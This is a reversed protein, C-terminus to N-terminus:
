RDFHSVRARAGTTSTYVISSIDTRESDRFLPIGPFLQFLFCRCSQSARTESSIGTSISTDWRHRTARASADCKPVQIQDQTPCKRLHPASVRFAGGNCLTGARFCCTTANPVRAHALSILIAATTPRYNSGNRPLDAKLAPRPL